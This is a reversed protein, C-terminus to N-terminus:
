YINVFLIFYSKSYSWNFKVEKVGFTQGKSVIKVSHKMYIYHVQTNLGPLILSGFPLIPDATLLNERINYVTCYKNM